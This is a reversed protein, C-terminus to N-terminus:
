SDSRKSLGLVFQLQHAESGQAAKLQAVVHLQRLEQVGALVQHLARGAQKGRQQQAAVLPLHGGDAPHLLARDGRRPKHRQHRLRLLQVLRAHLDPRGAKVDDVQGEQIVKAGQRLCPQPLVTGPLHYQSIRM